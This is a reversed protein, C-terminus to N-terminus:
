EGVITYGRGDAAMPKSIARRPYNSLKTSTAYKYFNSDWEKAWLRTSTACYVLMKLM